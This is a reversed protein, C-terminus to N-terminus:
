QVELVFTREVKGFRNFGIILEPRHRVYGSGTTGIEYYWDGPFFGKDSCLPHNDCDEGKGLKEEVEVRTLGHLHKLESVQVVLASNRKNQEASSVPEHLVSQLRPLTEQASPPPPGCSWVLIPLLFIARM